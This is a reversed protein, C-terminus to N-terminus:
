VFRKLIRLVTKFDRRLFVMFMKPDTPLLRLMRWLYHGPYHLRMAWSHELHLDKKVPINCERTMRAVRIAVDLRDECEKLSMVKNTFQSSALSGSRQTVVYLPVDVVRIKDALHGARFSFLVDNSYMTEDCRINNREIFDRNFVKGWLSYFDYRLNLESGTEAYEKFLYQYFDRNAPQSLDDSMVSKHSFFVIDSGEEVHGDLLECLGDVFLDDADIFLVWKGKAHKLGLNRARGASGGKPTQYFELHPRSLEPFRDKYSHADPSCDDVVIVQVSEQVPISKLCRMLLEPINYHPIIISYKYDSM